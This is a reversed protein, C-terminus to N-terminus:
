PVWVFLEQKKIQRYEDLKELNEKRFRVMLKEILESVSRRQVYAIKRIDKYPSPLVSLSM